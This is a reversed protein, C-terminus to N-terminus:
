YCSMTIQSFYRLYEIDIDKELMQIFTDKAADFFSQRYFNTNNWINFLVPNEQLLKIMFPNAKWNDQVYHCSRRLRDLVVINDLIDVTNM